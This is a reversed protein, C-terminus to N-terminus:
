GPLFHLNLKINGGAQITVYMHLVPDLAFDVLHRRLAAVNVRQKNQHLFFEFRFGELESILLM